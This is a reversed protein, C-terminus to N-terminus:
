KGQSTAGNFIAMTRQVTMAVKITPIDANIFLLHTGPTVCYKGGAQHKTHWRCRCFTCSPTVGLDIGTADDPQHPAAIVMGIIYLGLRDAEEEVDEEGCKRPGDSGPLPKYNAGDIIATRGDRPDQVLAAVGVKFPIKRHSVARDRAAFARDILTPVHRHWLLETDSSGSTTHQNPM